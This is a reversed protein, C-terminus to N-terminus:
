GNKVQLFNEFKQETAPHSLWSRLTILHYYRIWDPSELDEKLAQCSEDECKIFHPTNQAQMFDAINAFSRLKLQYRLEAIEDQLGEIITEYNM